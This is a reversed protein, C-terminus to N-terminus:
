ELNGPETTSNTHVLDLISNFLALSCALELECGATVVLCRATHVITKKHGIYNVKRKSRERASDMCFGFEYFHALGM